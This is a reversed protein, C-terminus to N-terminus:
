PTQYSLSTVDVEEGAGITTNSIEIDGGGGTGTVSCELIKNSNSDYWSAKSVASANGTASSDKTIPNAVSVGAANGGASGSDDFAPDSFTVTAVETGAALQFQMTGAGAGADLLDVVLDTISDKTSTEHTVTM